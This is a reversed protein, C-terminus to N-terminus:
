SKELLHAALRLSLAMITIQPNVGPSEPLVSADCVYVGPAGVVQLDADVVAGIAATGQPHFGSMVLNKRTFRAPSWEGLHGREIESEGVLPMVVREAGAAFLAEAAILLGAGLDTADDDHLAYRLVNRGAVKRVSGTARDRIMLGYNALHDHHDMWARHRAGGVQLVTGTVVAPTHAGEFTVRPLEPARYGLAQPVGGHPLPGPMWGFVKSAPHIRLGDGAVKFRDGLANARLLAPTGLAGGALVLTTARLERRTTPTCVLVRAQGGEVRVALAETDTLLTAGARVADPLYARDTSLKAGNPCGFCCRGAGRCDPANRPLAFAGTRGLLELGQRVLRASADLHEEPVPAVRLDALARAVFPDLLGDAFRTGAVRDWQELQSRLPAFSTGSNVVTTGGVARGAVVLTMGGGEVSGLMGQDVYWGEVARNATTSTLLSGAEVIAVKRGAAALAAAVPAGGAGSGIVLVDFVSNRLDTRAAIEPALALLPHGPDKPAADPYRAELLPARVLLWLLRVQLSPHTQLRADMRDFAEDRLAHAPRLGAGGLLPGLHDLARTVLPWAAGIPSPYRAARAAGLIAATAADDAGHRALWREALTTM